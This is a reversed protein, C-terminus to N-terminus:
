EAIPAHVGLLGRTHAEAISMHEGLLTEALSKPAVKLGLQPGLTGFVVDENIAQGPVHIYREHLRKTVVRFASVRRISLGGNGVSARRGMLSFFRHKLIKGHTNPEPGVWLRSGFSLFRMDPNWPAGVYDVDGISHEAFPRLLVADSQVLLMFTFQSYLSYLMETMMLASYSRVSSLHEDAIRRVFVQSFHQSYYATDLSAPALFEIRSASTVAISQAM